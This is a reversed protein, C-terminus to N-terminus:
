EDRRMSQDKEQQIGRKSEHAMSVLVRRIHMMDSGGGPRAPITPPPPPKVDQRATKAMARITGMGDITCAVRGRPASHM